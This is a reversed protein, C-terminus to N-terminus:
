SRFYNTADDENSSENKMHDMLDKEKKMKRMEEQLKNVIRVQGFASGLMFSGGLAVVLLVTFKFNDM